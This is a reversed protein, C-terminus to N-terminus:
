LYNGTDEIIKGDRMVIRRRTLRAYEEEHTIMLITQGERWLSLFAEMVVKGSVSDLNATPEDAFLIHPHHAIGRAIAVRQQQGGSLRAPVHSRRDALDLRTLAQDAKAFADHETFGQMLMPLAVNELATLEPLLAYEQFVYGLKTLRLTTKQEQNLRSTPNGDFYIEGSTPEDLLSLQYFLTSKGAGSPGIISVFEGHNILLDINKLVPTALEGSGYTKVLKEARLM